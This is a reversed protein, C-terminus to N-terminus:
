KEKAMRKRYKKLPPAGDPTWRFVTGVPFRRKYGRLVKRRTEADETLCEATWDWVDHKVSWRWLTMPLVVGGGHHNGHGGFALV